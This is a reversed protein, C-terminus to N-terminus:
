LEWSAHIPESSIWVPVCVTSILTSSVSSSFGDTLAFFFGRRPVFVFEVHYVHGFLQSPSVPSPSVACGFTGPPPAEFGPPPAESHRPAAELWHFDVFLPPLVLAGTRHRPSSTASNRLGIFNETIEHVEDLSSQSHSHNRTLACKTADIHM